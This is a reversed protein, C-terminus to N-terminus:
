LSMISQSLKNVIVNSYWIYRPDYKQITTDISERMCYLTRLMNDEIIGATSISYIKYGVMERVIDNINTHEGFWEDFVKMSLAHRDRKSKVPANNVNVPLYSERTSDYRLVINRESTGSLGTIQCFALLKQIDKRFEPDSRLEDKRSLSCMIREYIINDSGIDSSTEAATLPVYYLLVQKKNITVRHVGRRYVGFLDKIEEILCVFSNSHGKDIKCHIVGPHLTREEENEVLRVTYYRDKNYVWQHVIVANGLDGGDWDLTNNLIPQDKMDTELNFTWPVPVVKIKAPSRKKPVPKVITRETWPVAISKESTVLPVIEVKALSPKKTSGSSSNNKKQKKHDIIETTKDEMIHHIKQVINVKKTIM